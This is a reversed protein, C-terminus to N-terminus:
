YGGKGRETRQDCRVELPRPGLMVIWQVIHRQSALLWGGHVRVPILNTGGFSLAAPSPSEPAQLGVKKEIARRALWTFIMLSESWKHAELDGPDRKRRRADMRHGRWYRCHCKVRMLLKEPGAIVVYSGANRYLIGM